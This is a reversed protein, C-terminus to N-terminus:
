PNGFVAAGSVTTASAPDELSYTLGAGGPLAPDSTPGPESFFGSFVGSGTTSTGSLGTITVSQYFGSFLHAPLAPDSLAGILGNGFATWNANNIDLVVTSTVTQNTFDASFTASGLVGVNGFNDTPSTGGILSYNAMGNIPMTPVAVSAPGSVWHISQNGLDQSADVGGTLTINAIGGAWRGWRMMTVSDFGSDLIAASGIGFAGPEDVARGPYPGLFGLLNNNIDLQYEGPMNIQTGSYVTDVAGLPGTSYSITRNGQPQVDGPTIDVPTGDPDTGIISQEPPKSGDGQDTSDPTGSDAEPVRRINLKGNFGTAYGAPSGAPRSRGEDDAPPMPKGGSATDFGLDGDDLLVAPPKQLRRARRDMLPIFAFEGARLEIDGVENRFFIIGVTVGLYLGDEVPAAASVGPAWGCDGRCFVAAYDTGRIGLVGVPTRVEYSQEYDKGIVGTITRFGGKLLSTVSRDASTTVVAQGPMAAAGGPYAYEEIRLRSNPRLAIKAGDVMLLQARSAEGTAVTDDVLVADGKALAVPPTREAMVSGTAFIVQGADAALVTKSIVLVLWM